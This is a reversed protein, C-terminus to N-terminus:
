NTKEYKSAYREREFPIENAVYEQYEAGLEEDYERNDFLESLVLSGDSQGYAMFVYQKGVEPLGSDEVRIGNPMEVVIICMTGDKKFGGMKRAEVEEILEGKINKDVHIRYSGYSDFHDKLRNPLINDARTVTGVFVYDVIGAAKHMDSVDEAMSILAMVEKEGNWSVTKACSSCGLIIALCIIIRLSKAKMTRRRLFYKLISSSAM